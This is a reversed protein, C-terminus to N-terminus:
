LGSFRPVSELTMLCDSNGRLCKSDPSHFVLRCLFRAHWRKSDVIRFAVLTVEIREVYSGAIRRRSLKVFFPSIPKRPPPKQAATHGRNQRLREGARANKAQTNAMRGWFTPM